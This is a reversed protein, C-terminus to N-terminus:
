SEGKVQWVIAAAGTRTKRTAGSDEIRGDEVLDLIRSAYMNPRDPRGFEGMRVSLEDTTSPGLSQLMTLLRYKDTGARLQAVKAAGVETPHAGRRVYVKAPEVIEVEVRCSRCVQGGSVTVLDERSHLRRNRMCWENVEPVKM